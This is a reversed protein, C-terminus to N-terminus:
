RPPFYARRGREVFDRIRQRLRLREQETDHKVQWEATGAALDGTAKIWKWFLPFQHVAEELAFCMVNSKDKLFLEINETVTRVYDAAADGRTIKNQTAAGALIHDRYGVAMGGVVHFRRSWSAAVKEPDRTLHVYYAEDGYQKDLRGLVWTLRNDVEIHEDPYRLREDGLLSVRSEHLATFNSM